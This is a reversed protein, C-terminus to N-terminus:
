IHILSLVEAEIARQDAQNAANYRKQLEGLEADFKKKLEAFKKAADDQPVKGGAVLLCFSLSVITASLLRM